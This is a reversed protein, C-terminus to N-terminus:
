KQRPHCIARLVMHKLATITERNRQKRWKGRKGFIRFAQMDLPDIGREICAFIEWDTMYLYKM